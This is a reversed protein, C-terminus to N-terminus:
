LYANAYIECTATRQIKYNFKVDMKHCSSKSMNFSTSIDSSNEASSSVDPFTSSFHIFVVVVRANTLRIFSERLPYAKFVRLINHKKM